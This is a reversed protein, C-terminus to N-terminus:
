PKGVCYLNKATRIFLQGHAIAISSRVPGEGLPITALVEFSAGASLVVVTGSESVCYIRGDAVTPSARFIERVGLNGQWIKDGTKPNLCTMMQHDGDLVFFKGDWVLPTVCDSPFEKFQWAIHTDTVLGKGGDKVALVPDRKPACALIIGDIVVPSPVIRWSREHRLNLGGCRWLEAGTAVAHATLYDGGVVLIEAGGPGVCPIPTSYAEQSEDRADTPRVCQWLNTGTAPDLCLLFSGSAAKAEAGSGAEAARPSSRLVQVLLKGLYLLPSSGYIWKDALPGYDKVLQRRWLEKGAFDFAVLDGTAFLIYVSKGDTVPSPSAMNNRGAERDGAAVTKQWRIQGSKRDLCVLLLNKQPDPTSVFVSDDWIAPTAGSYGPLPATWAVNETRSWAAPLKKESTSGNFLPGRWQPWNEARACVGPALALGLGALIALRRM